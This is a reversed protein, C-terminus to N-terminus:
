CLVGSKQRQYFWRPLNSSPTRKKMAAIAMPQNLYYYTSSPCPRSHSCLFITRAGSMVLFALVSVRLKLLSVPPVSFIGRVKCTFNYIALKASRKLLCPRFYIWVANLQQAIMSPLPHEHKSLKHKGYYRADEEQIHGSDLLLIECLDRTAYHTFVPGRFGRNYLVPTYGSHDLHGHTLLIADLQNIDVPLTQWNRERLWKYGQYLGCDVLVKTSTMEILYKSGTVTETGGLFTIKM